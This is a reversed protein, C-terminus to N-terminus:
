VAPDCRIFMGVTREGTRPWYQPHQLIFGADSTSFALVWSEVKALARIKSLALRELTARDTAINNDLHHYSDRQEWLELCDAETADDIFKRQKLIRLNEEFDKAPRWSNSRCMHRVIAEGVAQSLSICGYFHGDRFLGICEASASAFSTGAILRHHEVQLYRDVREVVRAECQQQFERVLQTRNQISTNLEDEAM